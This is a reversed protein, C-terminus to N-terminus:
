TLPRFGLSVLGNTNGSDLNLWLIVDFPHFHTPLVSSLCFKEYSVIFVLVFELSHRAITLLLIQEKEKLQQFNLSDCYTELLTSRIFNM